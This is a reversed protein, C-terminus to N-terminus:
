PYTGIPDRAPHSPRKLVVAADDNGLAPLAFCCHQLLRFWLIRAPRRTQSTSARATAKARRPELGGFATHPRFPGALEMNVRLEPTFMPFSGSVPHRTSNTRACTDAPSGSPCLCLLSSPTRTLLVTGGCPRSPLPAPVSAWSPRSGTDPARGDHGPSSAACPANCRTTGTSRTRNQAAKLRNSTPILQLSSVHM